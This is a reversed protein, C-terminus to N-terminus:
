QNQPGPAQPWGPPPASAAPAPPAPRPRRSRIYIVVVAVLLLVIVFALGGKTSEASAADSCTAHTGESTAQLISGVPSACLGNMASASMNVHVGATNYYYYPTAVTYYIWIVLLIGAAVVLGTIWKRSAPMRRPSAQASTM